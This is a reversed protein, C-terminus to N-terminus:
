AAGGVVGAHKQMKHINLGHTNKMTRGCIECTAKRTDPMTKKRQHPQTQALPHKRAKRTKPAVVSNKHDDLAARLKDCLIVYGSGDDSEDLISRAEADTLQVNILKSTTTQM